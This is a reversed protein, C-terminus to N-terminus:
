FQYQVRFRRRPPTEQDLYDEFRVLHLGHIEFLACDEVTLPWPMTGPDEEPERGRCIVLLTGGPALLSSIQQIAQKRVEPPLVQLTYSELVFDFAHSWDVPPHVVDAAVYTVRSDPFRQQCWAIATDAIDFATVAFGRQALEEADDGLGCGIVLAKKGAGQVPHAALWDILNPNPTMDAWQIAQADGQAGAYLVEFWGTPDGQQIYEHALKKARARVSDTM